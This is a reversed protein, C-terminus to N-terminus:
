MAERRLYYMSVCFNKTRTGFNINLSIYPPYIYIKNDTLIKVEM